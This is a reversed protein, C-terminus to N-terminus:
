SRRANSRGAAFGATAAVISIAVISLAYWGLSIGSRRNDIYEVCDEFREGEDDEASAPREEEVWDWSRTVAKTWGAWNRAREDDSMLPDYV